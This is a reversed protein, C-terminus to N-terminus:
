SAQSYVTLKGGINNYAEWMYFTFMLAKISSLYFLGSVLGHLAQRHVEHPM